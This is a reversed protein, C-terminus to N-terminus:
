EILKKFAKVACLSRIGASAILFNRVTGAHHVIPFNRGLNAM